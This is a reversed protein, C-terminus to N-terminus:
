DHMKSCVALRGSSSGISVFGVCSLCIGLRLLHVDVITSNGGKERCRCMGIGFPRRTRFIICMCPEVYCVDRISQTRPPITCETKFLSCGRGGSFTAMEKAPCTDHPPTAFLHPRATVERQPSAASQSKCGSHGSQRCLKFRVRNSGTCLKYYAGDDSTGM